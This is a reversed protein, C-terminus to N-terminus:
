RHVWDRMQREWGDMRWVRRLSLLCRGHRCTNPQRGDIADWLLGRRDETFSPFTEWPQSCNTLKSPKKECARRWVSSLSSPKTCPMRLNSCPPSSISDLASAWASGASALKRACWAHHGKSWTGGGTTRGGTKSTEWFSALLQKLM